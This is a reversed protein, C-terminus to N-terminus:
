SLHIIGRKLAVSLAATRDQVNLKALIKKVYVQVTEESIGLAAAIEKNRMGHSILEIVQRERKSLPPRNARELLRAQVDSSVQPPKGAHVDRVVRILDASVTDKVLYADVGAELARYIDEDGQFMTLIIVRAAADERRIERVADLGSMVGLQLDM